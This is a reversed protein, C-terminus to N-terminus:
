FGGIVKPIYLAAPGLLVIFISPFIFMIMPFLMKVPAKFAKEQARQKAVMRMQKAQVKLIKGLGVGLTEAQVVAVIFQKLDEVDTREVMNRLAVKKEKGLRIETLVRSFEESLVGSMNESVKALAADFGLGADVSINILDLSFPLTKSIQYKRETILKSIWFKPLIFGGSPCGIIFVLLFNSFNGSLLAFVIGLIVPIVLGFVGQIGLYENATMGKPNGAVTIRKNLNGMYNKPVFKSLMTSVRMIYPFLLRESMPLDEIRKKNSLGGSGQVTISESELDNLRKKLLTENKSVTFAYYFSGLVMSVLIGVIVIKVIFM